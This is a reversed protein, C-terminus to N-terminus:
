NESFTLLRHIQETLYFPLSYLQYHISALHTKIKVDVQSPLDANIRVAHTLQKLAMFLHLSKLRGTSGSKVEIPIIHRGHQLLYDIEANSNKQERVWYYLAPSVYFPEISALLQGVVQEAVGGANILNLDSLASVYDLRLNLLASVLGVDLLIVKTMKENIEAALPVGNGATSGIKHVIRAQCLLHLAAKLTHAPIDKNVRSFTMKEGLMTPIAILMEELKSLSLKGAYKSFDDRYSALLDSHIQDVNKFTQTNVWAYVAAPMGGVIVYEKFLSMLREHLASPITQGWTFQQVYDLLPKQGYADLFEEFTLPGLHMYTIRGVPMSFEHQDLVFELLSGATIVPLDPLEEAFWRLKSLLVPVVQIEDLFLLATQPNITRNLRASIQMLIVTPDNSEFLTQYQPNREFNLEILNKNHLQALERVLWTKGVQRAGRMVVPKRSPSELWATLYTLARRPM